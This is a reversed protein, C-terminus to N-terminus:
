AGSSGPKVPQLYDFRLDSAAEGRGTRKRVGLWTYVQGNYWRTRQYSQTVAIGARVVEEEDLFYSQKIEQDLGQRLLNTRPKIRQVGEPDGELVRPMAGRQLRTQRISGQEHTAIFPIWNEPVNSMIKYRLAAAPPQPEPRPGTSEAVIHQLLRVTDRAAELGPVSIGGPAPVRQEIAWVMNAVEDRVLDVAEIPKGEQVKPVTPVIMLSLDAPRRESGIIDMSYMTWRDPSDDLGAGSATIWFNEGFVNKVAMGRIDAITGAPLTLPALYWDNAGVLGFEMLLLKNLDTTDPAIDGFNTRGEEFAWWRTNPMGDFQVPTPIFSRIIPSRNGNTAPAAAADGLNSTSADISFNYWDLHGQYYADAAFVKDGGNVPASCAFQYELKSPLWADSNSDQPQYYLKDFWQVFRKGLAILDSQIGPDAGVRIVHRGNDEVIDEYLKKGDVHRHATAAHKRWSQPTACYYVDPRNAPDPDHVPYHEIYAAKLGSDFGNKSLLRVWQRGMLLRLDLSIEVEGAAFPIRRQEVKTELPLSDDFAVTAHQAPRYKNLMTRNVYLKSSVPTGADDGKFEGLQWQRTLMWLADRVEARLARDFDHTRPRGELRNFLPLTPLLLKRDLFEHLQVTPLQNNM